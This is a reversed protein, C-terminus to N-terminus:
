GIVRRLRKRNVSLWYGIVAAALAAAVWTGPEPVATVELLIDNGGALNGSVSDAVYDILFVYNGSTITAGSSFAGTVPDVGDNVVVFFKDGVSLSGGINLVLNPLTTLSLNLLSVTGTVSM